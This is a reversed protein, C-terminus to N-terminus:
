RRWGDAHGPLHRPLALPGVPPAHFDSGDMRPGAPHRMPWQFSNMGEEATLYLRGAREKKEEPIDSTFTDVVADDGGEARAITLTVEDEGEGEGEGEGDPAEPLWYTFAVGRELDTGADIM